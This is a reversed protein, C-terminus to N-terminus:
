LVPWQVFDSWEFRHIITWYRRLNGAMRAFPMSVFPIAIM